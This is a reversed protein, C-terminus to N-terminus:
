NTGCVNANAECWEEADVYQWNDTDFVYRIIKRDTLERLTPTWLDEPGAALIKSRTDRDVGHDTLFQSLDENMESETESDVEVFDSWRHFGVVTGVVVTPAQSALLPMTCASSCEGMAVVTLKREDVLEVLEFAAGVLGGASSLALVEVGANSNLLDRVEDVADFNIDGELRIDTGEVLSVSYDGLLAGTVLQTQIKIVTAFAIITGLVGLFGLVVSFRAAMAWFIRNVKKIHRGASRWTGVLQWTTVTVGVIAIASLAAVDTWDPRTYPESYTAEVFAWVPSSALNLLFGNVWFSVALSLEGRWHAIIYGLTIAEM